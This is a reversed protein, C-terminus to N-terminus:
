SAPGRASWILPGAVDDWAISSRFWNGEVGHIITSVNLRYWEDARGPLYVYGHDTAPDYEYFLVYVLREEPLKAFISVEYRRLAKPRETVPQSWDVIFKDNRRPSTGTWSTGPGCWLDFQTLENSDTIEIPNKLDPGKISIKSINAKAFVLAPVALLLFALLVVFRRRL